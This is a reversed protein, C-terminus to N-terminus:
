GKGADAEPATLLAFADPFDAVHEIAPHWHFVNERDGIIIIRKERALAYGLEVHRGGRGNGHQAKPNWLVLADAADIDALDDLCCIQPAVGDHKGDIWRATVSIKDAWEDRCARMAAQEQYRGALYVKM